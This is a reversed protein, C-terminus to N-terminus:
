EGSGSSPSSSRTRLASAAIYLALCRPRLRTATKPSGSDGTSSQIGPAPAEDFYIAVQEQGPSQIGRLIYRKEGAGIDNFTLGPVQYAFDTFDRVGMKELTQAGFATIATPIDQVREEGRKRATVLVEERETTGVDNTGAAAPVDAM